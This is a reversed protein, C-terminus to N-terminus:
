PWPFVPKDQRGARVAAEEAAQMQACWACEVGTGAHCSDDHVSPQFQGTRVGSVYEDHQPHENMIDEVPVPGVQNSGTVM